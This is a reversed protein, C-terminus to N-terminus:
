LLKGGETYYSQLLVLSEYQSTVKASVLNIFVELESPGLPRYLSTRYCGYIKM